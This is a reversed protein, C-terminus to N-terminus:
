GKKMVNAIEKFGVPVNVVKIKNKHAWEDWSMASATTKIIFRPHEELKGSKKLQSYWFDMILLFSQNATLVTLVRGNDLKVCDIGAEKITEINQEDEIQCCTM